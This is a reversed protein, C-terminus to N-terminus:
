AKRPRVVVETIQSDETADVVVRVGAAVSTPDSYYYREIQEPEGRTVRSKYNM